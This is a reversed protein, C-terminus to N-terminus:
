KECVTIDNFWYMVLSSIINTPSRVEVASGPGNWIKYNLEMIVARM